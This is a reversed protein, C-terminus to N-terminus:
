KEFSLTSNLVLNPNEERPNSPSVVDFFVQDYSPPTFSASLLTTEELYANEIKAALDQLLKKRKDSLSILKIPKYATMPTKACNNFLLKQGQKNVHEMPATHFYVFDLLGKLDFSFKKIKNKLSNWVYFPLGLKELKEVRYGSNLQLLNLEKDEVPHELIINRKILDEIAERLASSYPGFKYFIWDTNTVIKGNGEQEANYVDTLYIFKILVTLSIGQPSSEQAEAIISCIIKELLRNM